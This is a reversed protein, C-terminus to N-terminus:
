EPLIEVLVAINPNVILCGQVGKSLCDVSPRARDEFSARRDLHIGWTHGPQDMGRGTPSRNAVWYVTQTHPDDVSLSRQM